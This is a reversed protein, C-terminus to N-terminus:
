ISKIYYFMYQQVLGALEGYVGPNLTGNYYTDIIRQIWVDIPFMDLKHLGFLAVCNAVKPGVGYLGQLTESAIYGPVSADNLKNLDLRGSNVAIAANIIYSDRYGLGLGDLDSIDLKSLTQHTPFTYDTYVKGNVEISIKEGFANCLKQITSKIKPINNRQSIIFSVLTEWPDQRLIRIGEGANKAKNAFIDDSPITISYDTDLDLYHVLTEEWEHKTATTIIVPIYGTFGSKIKNDTINTIDDIHIEKQKLMYQKNNVTGLWTGDLLKNWRFCQGCDFTKDLDLTSKNIGLIALFGNYEGYTYNM